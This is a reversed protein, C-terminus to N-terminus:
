KGKKDILNFNCEGCTCRLAEKMGFKPSVSLLEHCRGCTMVTILNQFNEVLPKMDKPDLQAWENYHTAANLEWEDVRVAAKSKHFKIEMSSIEAVKENQGWSVAADKAKKLLKSYEALAPQMIAALSHQADARYEVKARVREAIDSFIYELYNRLGAAAASAQNRELDDDIENWIDKDDWNVPGFEVSWKRFQRFGTRTVFGQAKMHELWIKDHTTIIFQTSPFASKLLKCVERRHGADVSMLVDDLVAFTFEGGMLHKMLALYLCLGMADQHGESHYAAPPFQGRGFFDVDLRLKGAAPTLAATFQSENDDNISRYFEQFQTEVTKYILNLESTTVAEYKEFINSSKNAAIEADIYKARAELFSHFKSHCDMLFEIALQKETLDPINLINMEISKLEKIVKEPLAISRLLSTTKLSLIEDSNIIELEQIKSNMNQLAELEIAASMRKSFTMLDVVLSKAETLCQKIFIFQDELHKYKSRADELKEIKDKIFEHFNASDWAVECVPCHTGDFENLALELLEIRSVAGVLARDGSFSSIKEALIHCQEVVSENTLRNISDVLRNLKEIGVQRSLPKESEAHVGFGEKISMKESYGVIPDLGIIERRKNIGELFLVEDFQALGATAELQDKVFLFSAEAQKLRKLSDGAIKSLYIRLKTIEDLRLLEQVDQARKGPEALIYKIIQRRSLAFEPHQEIQRVAQLIDDDKPTIIPARPKIVSRSISFKKRSSVLELHLIVKAKEPSGASDVHPGHERLSLLGTGSGMLRTVSGTLGFELADVVGSKGSGNPGCIAFNKQGFNFHLKKIGRFEIIEISEVRIM